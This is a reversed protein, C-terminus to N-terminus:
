VQHLLNIRFNNPPNNRSSSGRNRVGTTYRVSMGAGDMMIFTGNMEANSESEAASGSGIEALEAREAELMIAFITPQDGPSYDNAFSDDVRYLANATQSLSQNTQLAPAPWTRM